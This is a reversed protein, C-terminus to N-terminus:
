RLMAETIIESYNKECSFNINRQHDGREGILIKAGSKSRLTQTSIGWLQHGYM